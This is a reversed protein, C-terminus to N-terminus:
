RLFNETIRQISRKKAEKPAKTLNGLKRAIRVGHFYFKDRKRFRKEKRPVVFEAVEELTSSLRRRRGSGSRVKRYEIWLMLLAVSLAGIIVTLVIDSRRTDELFQEVTGAGTKLDASLEQSPEMESRKLRLWGKNLFDYFVSNM